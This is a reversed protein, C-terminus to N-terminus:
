RSLVREIETGGRNLSFIIRGTAANLHRYFDAVTDVENSDIAQVVDGQRLDAKAAKTEAIVGAIIVGEIDNPLGINKRVIETIGLVVFGPWIHKEASIKEEPKRATLVADVTRESGNRYLTFTMKSDPAVGGIAYSLRDADRVPDGNVETIFDGPKIGNETAPSDEFVQFVFAGTKAELGMDKMIGPYTDASIDDISVGLWGYIIRGQEIFDDIAKKAINIPISFGIGVSGGSQSAIWSNIGVVNGNLDLLAGGSNGPNISADTQIFDTFMAAQSGQEARRGVASVIGATVTSEFGFPNGLALVWDGVRLTDSDGLQALPLEEKTEFSILALDTRADTGVVEAEFERGDNLVVGIENAEAVVHNNTLAYVVNGDRKTLVGSGLGPRRFERQQGSKDDPSPGFFLDWPSLPGASNEQKIIEVTNIEIVVPLAREAVRRFSYQMATLTELGQATAAEESMTGESSETTSSASGSVSVQRVADTATQETDSGTDATDNGDCGSIFGAMILLSIGLVVTRFVTGTIPKQKKRDKQIAYEAYLSADQM